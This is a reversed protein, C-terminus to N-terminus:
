ADPEQADLWAKVQSKRFYVRGAVRLRPPGYGTANWESITKSSLHLYSALEGKTMLEDLDYM